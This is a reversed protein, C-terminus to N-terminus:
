WAPRSPLPIRRERRPAAGGAPTELPNTVPTPAAPAPAAAVAAAAEPREPAQAAPQPVSPLLPEAVAIDIEPAPAAEAMATTELDVEAEPQLGLAELKAPWLESGSYRGSFSAPRGWAGPWRYFIHTGVQAAKDLTPAWYPFVWDTHYHTALGVRRSVAGNLVMGAVARAREWGAADPRRQLAGDCTFTFQCGTARESGQFVVACVSKPYAPHRMRNVVVQAVALQGEVTEAGAEYYVAATLCDLARAYRTLDDSPLFLPRAPLLPETSFPLEANAARAEDPALEDVSQPSVVLAEVNLPPRGTQRAVAAPAEAKPQILGRGFWLAAALGAIALVAALLVIRTKTPSM